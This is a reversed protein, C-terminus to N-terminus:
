VDLEPYYRFLGDENFQLRRDSQLYAAINPRQPVQKSLARLRPYRRAHRAMSHPFAYCLGGLLQFLSLDVYSLANGVMHRGRNRELV